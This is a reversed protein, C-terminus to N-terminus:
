YVIRSKSTLSFTHSMGPFNFMPQYAYNVSVMVRSPPSSSNDPYSVQVSIGTTTRLYNGLYANVASVVNSGTSDTCGSSPGSCINSDTGHSMAYRVGQKAAGSLVTLIYSLICFEVLGFVMTLVAVLVLASELAVSGVDEHLVGRLRKWSWSCFQMTEGDSRM